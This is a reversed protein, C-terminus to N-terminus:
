ESAVILFNILMRHFQENIWSYILDIFLDAAFDSSLLFQDVTIRAAIYRERFYGVDCRLAHVALLKEM